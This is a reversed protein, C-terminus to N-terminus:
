HRTLPHARDDIGNVVEDIRPKDVRFEDRGDVTRNATECLFIVPTKAIGPQFSSRITARM